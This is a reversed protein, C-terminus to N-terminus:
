GADQGDIARHDGGDFYDGIRIFKKRGPEYELPECFDEDAYGAQEEVDCYEKFPPLGSTHTLLHRV